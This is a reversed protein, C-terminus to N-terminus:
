REGSLVPHAWVPWTPDGLLRGREYSAVLRFPTTARSNDYVMTRDALERAQVIFDWLREYRERIKTEPVTHGGGEVRHAVRAVALDEPVLIVELTVLYGAALAQKVLEVKSVHSFVTETIFSQRAALAADRQKTALTSAEYAHESERGPWRQAAIVDANIFPLHTERELVEKVFTSKGAGNPGALIHLVPSSV